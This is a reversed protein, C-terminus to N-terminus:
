TGEEGVEMIKVKQGLKTPSTLTGFVLGRKLCDRCIPQNVAFRIVEGGELKLHFDQHKDQEQWVIKMKCSICDELVLMEETVKQAKSVYFKDLAYKMADDAASKRADQQKAIGFALDDWDKPTM